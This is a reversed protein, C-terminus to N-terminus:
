FSVRACQLHKVAIPSVVQKTFTPPSSNRARYIDRWSLYFVHSQKFQACIHISKNTTMYIASMPKKYWMWVTPLCGPAKKDSFMMTSLFPQPFPSPRLVPHTIPDAWVYITQLGGLCINNSTRFLDFTFISLRFESINRYQCHRCIYTWYQYNMIYHKPSNHVDLVRQASTLGRIDIFM